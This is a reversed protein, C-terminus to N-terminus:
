SKRRERCYDCVHGHEQLIPILVDSEDLLWKPDPRGRGGITGDPRRYQHAKAVITGDLTLYDLMQSETGVPEGSSAPALSRRYISVRIDDGVRGAYDAINFKDRLLWPCVRRM